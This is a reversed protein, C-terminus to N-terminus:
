SSLNPCKLRQKERKAEILRCECIEFLERFNKIKGRRNDAIGFTTTVTFFHENRFFQLGEIATKMRNALEKGERFETGSAVLIFGVGGSRGLLHEGVTEKLKEAIKIIVEDGFFYGYNENIDHFRDIDFAICLVSQNNRAAEKLRRDTEKEIYNRNYLATLSDTDAKHKLDSLRNQIELKIAAIHMQKEGIKKLLDIYERQVQYGLEINNTKVCLDNRYEQIEKLLYLDEYKEAKKKADQYKELAKQFNGKAALLNGELTLFQTMERPFTELVPEMKMKKLMEEARELQGLRILSCVINLKVRFELIYSKPSYKLAAELGREGLELATKYDGEVICIHSYNSYANSVINYKKLKEGLMISKELTEKAKEFDKLIEYLLFRINYLKLFDDEEGHSQCIREYMEMRKFAEPIDGICYFSAAINILAILMTKYDQKEEGILLLREGEEITEKYKGEARLITVRHKLRKLEQEDM